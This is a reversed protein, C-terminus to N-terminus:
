QPPAMKTTLQQPWVMTQLLSRFRKSLNLNLQIGKRQPHISPLTASLSLSLLSTPGSSLNLLLHSLVLQSLTTTGYNLLSHSPITPSSNFTTPETPNHDPLMPWHLTQPQTLTGHAEQLLPITTLRTPRTMYQLPQRQWLLQMWQQMWAQSSKVQQSNLTLLTLHAPQTPGLLHSATHQRKRDEKITLPTPLTTRCLTLSNLTRAQLYKNFKLKSGLSRIKNAPQSLITTTPTFRQSSSLQFNDLSSVPFLLALQLQTATSSWTISLSTGTTPTFNFMTAVRSMPPLHCKLWLAQQNLTLMTTGFLVTQNM